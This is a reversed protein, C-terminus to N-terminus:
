SLNTEFCSYTVCSNHAYNTMTFVKDFVTFNWGVRSHHLKKIKFNGLFIEISILKLKRFTIKMEIYKQLYQRSRHRHNEHETFCKRHSEFSPSLRRISMTITVIRFPLIFQHLISKKEPNFISISWTIKNDQARNIIPKM